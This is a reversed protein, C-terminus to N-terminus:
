IEYQDLFFIIILLNLKQAYFWSKRNLQGRVIEVNSKWINIFYLVQSEIM